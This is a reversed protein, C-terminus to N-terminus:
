HFEKKTLFIDDIAVYKTKMTKFDSCCQAVSIRKLTTKERCIQIVSVKLLNQANKYHKTANNSINGLFLRCNAKWLHLFSSFRALFLFTVAYKRVYTNQWNVQIELYLSCKIVISSSVFMCSTCNFIRYVDISVYMM